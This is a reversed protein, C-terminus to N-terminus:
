IRNFDSCMIKQTRVVSGNGGKTAYQVRSDRAHFQDEEIGLCRCLSVYTLLVIITYEDLLQLQNRVCM